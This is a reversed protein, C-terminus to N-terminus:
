ASRPVRATLACRCNIDEGPVGSLGPGPTQVGSPFTFKMGHRRRQGEMPRHSDRVALDRATLWEQEIPLGEAVARGWRRQTAGTQSRVTETRAVRLARARTFAQSERIDEAITSPSRGKIVGETVIRRVEEQDYDAMYRASVALPDYDEPRMDLAPVKQYAAPLGDLASAMAAIWANSWPGALRNIWRMVADAIDGIIVALRVAGYLTAGDQREGQVVARRLEALAREM